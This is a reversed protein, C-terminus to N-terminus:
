QIRRQVTTTLRSVSCFQSGTTGKCRGNEFLDNDGHGVTVVVNYLGGNGIAQISLDILRMNKSLLERGSPPPTGSLDQPTTGSNCPTSMRDVVFVNRTAPSSEDLKKDLEYSYRRSGVCFGRESGLNTLATSVPDGSFQIAQAIDDIITRTTEQTNTNTTGKLFMRGVQLLGTTILLLIVSFVLSAIMLEVITFGSNNNQTTMKM